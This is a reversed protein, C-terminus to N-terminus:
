EGSRGCANLRATDVVLVVSARKVPDVLAAVEPPTDGGLETIELADAVAQRIQTASSKFEVAGFSYAGIVQESVRHIAQRILEAFPDGTAHSVTGVAARQNGRSGGSLAVAAMANMRSELGNAVAQRSASTRAAKIAAEEDEDDAISMQVPAAAWGALSANASVRLAELRAAQAQIAASSELICNMGTRGISMAQVRGNVNYYGRVSGLTGGLLGLAATTDPHAGFAATAVGAVASALLARDLNGQGRSLAVDHDMYARRMAAACTRAQDTTLNPEWLPACGTVLSNDAPLDSAAWEPMPPRPQNLACGSTFVAALLATGIITSSTAKM